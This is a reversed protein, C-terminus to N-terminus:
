REEMGGVRYQKGKKGKECRVEPNPKTETLHEALEGRSEKSALSTENGNPKYPSKKLDINSNTCDNRKLKPLLNYNPEPETLM